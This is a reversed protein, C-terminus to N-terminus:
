CFRKIKKPSKVKVVNTDISKILKNQLRRNKIELKCKKMENLIDKRKQTENIDIYNLLEDFFYIKKSNGMTDDVNSVIEIIKESTNDNLWNYPQKFYVCLEAYYQTFTNARRLEIIKKIEISDCPLIEAIEKQISVDCDKYKSMIKGNEDYEYLGVVYFNYLPKLGFARPM